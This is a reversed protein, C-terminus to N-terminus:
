EKLFAESKLASVKNNLFITFKSDPFQKKFNEIVKIKPELDKYYELKTTVIYFNIVENNPSENLAKKYIELAQKHKKQRNYYYALKSYQMDLSVDQLKLAVEQYKAANIYDKNEEYLFALKYLLNVDTSNNNIVLKLHEIAKEYNSNYRYCLSLKTNVFDTTENLNYLHQFTKLAEVYNDKFLLSQGKLSLLSKNSAYVELGKNAYKLATDFHSKKLHYKSLEFLANQHYNDLEYTSFFRSQASFEDNLKQHVKGLQYHYNPNKYDVDILKLFLQKAADYNKTDAYLKALDFQINYLTSDQKIVDKYALIAADYNGIIKYANGINANPINSTNYMKIAQSYKGVAFLSDAIHLVSTQAQSKVLFLLILITVRM